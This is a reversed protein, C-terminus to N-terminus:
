SLKLLAIITDSWYTANGSFLYARPVGDASFHLSCMCHAAYFKVPDIITTSGAVLSVYGADQVDLSRADALRDAFSLSGDTFFRHARLHNWTNNTNDLYRKYIAWIYNGTTWTGDMGSWDGVVGNNYGHHDNHDTTVTSNGVTVEKFRYVASIPTNVFQERAPKLHPNTGFPANANLLNNVETKTYASILNPTIGHPNVASRHADNESNVDNLSVNM